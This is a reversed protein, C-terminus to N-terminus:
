ASGVLVLDAKGHCWKKDFWDLGQQSTYGPISCDHIEIRAAPFTQQLHAALRRPFQFAPESADGGATISDGYSVIKFAGGAKLKRRSAMLRDPQPNPDAWRHGRTSQYDAWVFWKQNSFDPFKSHDFEKLGFLPYTTYDPIRSSATRQISGDAYNVVYDVAEQYLVTNTRGAVYSSRLSFSGKVIRDFCLQRADTGPLLLSEGQVKVKIPRTRADDGNKVPAACGAWIALAALLFLSRYRIEM